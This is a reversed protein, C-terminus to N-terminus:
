NNFFAFFLGNLPTKIIFIKLSASLIDYLLMIIAVGNSNNRKIIFKYKNIVFFATLAKGEVIKNKIGDPVILFLNDSLLKEINM